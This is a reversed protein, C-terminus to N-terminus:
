RCLLSIARLEHFGQRFVDVEEGGLCLPLALPFCPADVVEVRVVPLFWGEADVSRGRVRAALEVHSVDQVPRVEVDYGAVLAHSAVVDVKGLAPVAM